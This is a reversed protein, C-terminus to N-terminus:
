DTEVELFCSKGEYDLNIKNEEGNNDIFTYIVGSNDRYGYEEYSVYKGLYKLENTTYYKEYPYKGEKETYFAFYYEKGVVFEDTCM